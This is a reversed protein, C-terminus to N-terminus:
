KREEEEYNWIMRSPKNNDALGQERRRAEEAKEEDDWTKRTTVNGGQCSLRFEGNEEKIAIKDM